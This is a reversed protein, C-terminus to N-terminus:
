SDSKRPTGWDVFMPSARPLATSCNLFGSSALLPAPGTATSNV